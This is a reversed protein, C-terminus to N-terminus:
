EDSADMPRIMSEIFSIEEGNLQYKDYLFEDTFNQNWEQQPVFTYVRQTADHTTKHLLVLFRFFKTKMYSLASHVEEQNAFPAICLYTETCIQGPYGAFPKGIIPHPFNHTGNSARPIFIKHVDILNKGQLIESEEIYGIGGNQYLLLDTPSPTNKGQIYTRLGFPRLSSVLNKFSNNNTKSLLGPTKSSVKNLIELGLNYRIFIELDQEKLLRNSSTEIQGIHTTIKTLGKYGSEWLFYSVGGKIHTGPFIDNSDNFDVLIKISNEQLMTDRFEDLGRGGSFWRSPTIMCIYRPEIKKAQTVFHQYIPIASAGQGGDNLQYPPNGIVVDFKMDAGFIEAIFDKINEQHIFAYAHSELSADREYEAQSAGCFKCKGNTSKEVTKGDENTVLIKKTGGVWTHDTREFWINGQETEFSKAISHKGNAYKSCYVSRRALLSTLTETAIGFVQKTLIHDVRDQLDPIEGELGKNLRSVIERLFVGSKTFPDLFTVKSDEWISAGENSEAWAAELSDLMQNAIEPPTFVADNSLNAICTLVDPNRGQLQFSAKTAM